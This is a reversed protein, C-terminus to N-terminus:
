QPPRPYSQGQPPGSRSYPNAGYGAYGGQAPPPQYSSTPQQPYGPYGSQAPAGGPTPYSASGANAGQYSQSGGTSAPYGSNPNQGSAPPFGPAAQYSPTSSPPGTQYSPTSSPPGGPYSPTSSPAGTPYNSTSSPPGGPYSSPPGSPPVAQSAGPQPGPYSSPPGSPATTPTSGGLQFSSAVAAPTSGPYASPASSPPGLPRSTPAAGPYAPQSPTSSPYVSQQQQQQTPPQQQQQQQQYQNQQQGPASSSNSVTSQGSMQRSKEDTVNAAQITQEQGLPDFEKNQELNLNSVQAVTEGFTKNFSESVGSDKESKEESVVMDLLSNVRDRINRLEKVVEKDFTNTVSGGKQDDQQLITLRLVRSYQIAYSLDNTDALSVLDGDEDMYKLVLDEEAKLVGKFVRQMMLILEDYTLDDNHIPIRRIDDGVSAKIILQGGSTSDLKGLGNSLSM